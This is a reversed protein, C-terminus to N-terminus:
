LEIVSGRMLWVSHMDSESGIIISHYFNVPFNLAVLFQNLPVVVLDIYIIYYLFSSAALLLITCYAVCLKVKFCFLFFYSKSQKKREKRESKTKGDMKM